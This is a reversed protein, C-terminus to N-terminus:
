KQMLIKRIDEYHAAFQKNSLRVMVCFANDEVFINCILQTKKRHAVGWGYSKGYPFVIKKETSLNMSIWNNLRVFLQSAGACYAELESFTPKHQKDLMREYM